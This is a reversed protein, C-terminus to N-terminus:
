GRPCEATGTLREKRGTTPPSCTPREKCSRRVAPIDLMKKGRPISCFVGGLNIHFQRPLVHRCSMVLVGCSWFLRSVISQCYLCSLVPLVSSVSLFVLLCFFLCSVPASLCLPVSLCVFVLLASLFAAASRAFFRDLVTPPSVFDDSLFFFVPIDM